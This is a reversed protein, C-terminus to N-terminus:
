IMATENGPKVEERSQTQRSVVKEGQIRIQGNITTENVVQMKNKHFWNLADYYEELNVRATVRRTTFDQTRIQM